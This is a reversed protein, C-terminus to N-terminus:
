GHLRRFHAMIIPVVSAGGGVSWGLLPFTGDAYDIVVEDFYAHGSIDLSSYGINVQGIDLALESTVSVESGVLNHSTDYVRLYCTDDNAAQMTVWYWTGSSVTVGSSYTGANNRMQLEIHDTVYRVYFRIHAAQDVGYDFNGQVVGGEVIAPVNYWFGVSVPSSRSGTFDAYIRATNAGSWAVEMGNSGEYKASASNPDLVSATDSETWPSALADEFDEHIDVTQEYFTAM